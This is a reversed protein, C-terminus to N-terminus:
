PQSSVFASIAQVAAAGGATLLAAFVLRRMSARDAQMEALETEVAKIRLEDAARNAAYVDARVLEGRISRLDSRLETVNRNVEGLSPEDAVTV